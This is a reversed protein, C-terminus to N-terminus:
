STAHLKEALACFFDRSWLDLSMPDKVFPLVDRKAANFDTTAFKDRLKKVLDKTSLTKSPSLDGTQKMRAAVQGLDPRVNRGVYWVFDYFDRGKVRSVWPRCLLAHIKGAFLAPLTFGKVQFPIPTLLTKVETPASGPPDIDLELKIKLNHTQPIQASLTKPVEIRFFNELTDAKIFASEIRSPKKKDKKEVSVALGFSELEARIARLYPKLDFDKRPTLLSFDLDESFRDLGHFIRLATGGYFAAHEFFKERWLGLLALHQLIEKLANEFSERSTAAYPVLM